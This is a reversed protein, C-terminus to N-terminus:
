CPTSEKGTPQQQEGPGSRFPDITPPWHMQVEGEIYHYDASLVRPQEEDNNHVLRCVYDWQRGPKTEVAWRGRHLVVEAGCDACEPM